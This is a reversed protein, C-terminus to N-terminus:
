GVMTDIVGEGSEWSRMAIGAQSRGVVDEIRDVHAQNHLAYDPDELEDLAVLGLDVPQSYKLPSTRRGGLTWVSRLMSAQANAM